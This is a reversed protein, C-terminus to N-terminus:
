TLKEPRPLNDPKRARSLNQTIRRRIRQFLTPRGVELLVLSVNDRGANDLATDMLKPGLIDIGSNAYSRFLYEIEERYISDSLGDSCLLWRDGPKLPITEIQPDIPKDANGLVRDIYSRYPHILAEEETLRGQAVLEGVPSHDTSVQSFVGDSFRYCRSDGIHSLWAQGQFATLATFTTAMGDKSPDNNFATVISQHAAELASKITSANVDTDAECAQRLEACVTEIAMKSAEEGAVCGGVGDAVAALSLTSSDDFRTTLLSDCEAGPGSIEGWFVADENNSRFNGRHTFAIGSLLNEM